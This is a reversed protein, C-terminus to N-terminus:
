RRTRRVRIPAARTPQLERELHGSAPLVETFFRRDSEFTPTLASHEHPEIWRVDAVEREDPELTGGIIEAAWWHLRYRGDQSVSQWLPGIPRVVFGVEEEVERVLAAEISEAPEVKGSLPAWYGAFPVDAGRQILLIQRGRMLIAVVGDRVGRGFDAEM